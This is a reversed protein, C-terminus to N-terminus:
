DGAVELAAPDSPDPKERLSQNRGISTCFEHPNAEFRDALDHEGADRWLRAQDALYYRGNTFLRQHSAGMGTRLDSLTAPRPAPMKFIAWVSSADEADLDDSPACPDVVIEIQM